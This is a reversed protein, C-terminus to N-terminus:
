NRTTTEVGSSLIVVSQVFTLIFSGLTVPEYVELISVEVVGGRLQM